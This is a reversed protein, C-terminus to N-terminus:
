IPSDQFHAGLCLCRFYIRKDLAMPLCPRRVDEMSNKWTSLHAGTTEEPGPEPSRYDGRSRTMRIGTHKQIADGRGKGEKVKV